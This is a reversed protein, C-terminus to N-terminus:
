EQQLLVRSEEVMREVLRAQSLNGQRRYLQAAMKYDNIAATRNGVLVQAHARALYADARNPNLQVAETFSSIAAKHQEAQSFEYGQQYAWASGTADRTQRGTECIHDLNVVHGPSFIVFCSQEARECIHNLDVVQGSSSISFCGAREQATTVPQGVLIIATVAFFQTLLRKM